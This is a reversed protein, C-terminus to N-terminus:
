LGVSSWAPCNRTCYLTLGLFYITEPRNRGRKGAHRQAFRGFEVLKTKTPELTLGFKGLRLRLADLRDCECICSISVNGDSLHPQQDLLRCFVLIDSASRGVFVPRDKQRVFFEFRNNYFCVVKGNYFHMEVSSAISEIRM